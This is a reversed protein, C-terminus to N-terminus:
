SEGGNKGNKKWTTGAFLAGLMFAIVVSLLWLLWTSGEM